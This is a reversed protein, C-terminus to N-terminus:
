PLLIVAATAMNPVAERSEGREGGEKPKNEFQQLASSRTLSRWAAGAPGQLPEPGQGTHTIKPTHEWPKPTTGVSTTSTKGRAMHLARQPDHAGQPTLIPAFRAM